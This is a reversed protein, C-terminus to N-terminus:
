KCQGVSPGVDACPNYHTPLGNRLSMLVDDNLHVPVMDTRTLRLM